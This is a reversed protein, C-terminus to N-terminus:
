RKKIGEGTERAMKINEEITNLDSASQATRSKSGYKGALAHTRKGLKSQQKETLKDYNAVLRAPGKPPSRRVKVM